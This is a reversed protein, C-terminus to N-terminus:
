QVSILQKEDEVVGVFELCQVGDIVKGLGDHFKAPDVIDKGTVANTAQITNQILTLATNKKDTGSKHGFVGKAVHRTVQAAITPPM